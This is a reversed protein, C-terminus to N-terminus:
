TGGAEKERKRCAKLLGCYCSIKRPDHSFRRFNDTCVMLCVANQTGIGPISTVITFIWTLEGDSEILSAIRRDVKEIERNLESVIHRGSQSIM